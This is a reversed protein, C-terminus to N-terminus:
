GTAAAWIVGVALLTMGALFILTEAGTLIRRM